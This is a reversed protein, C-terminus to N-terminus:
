YLISLWFVGIMITVITIPIGARLYEGFSLIVKRKKASEAVILNAVSGLLTLNGAFTTAMAMTLWAIQTNSFAAVINRLLLVAPVNSILNSSVTSIVTLDIIENGSNIKLIDILHESVGITEITRTVVFLGSFFVLLSWDIEIFVREPKIRRTILLLSAAGMAALATPVGIFLAALMLISAIISKKLLPRYIRFQPLEITEFTGNSFETKYLLRIFIWIVVLGLSAIPLLYLTFEAFAIGSFTGILINQPNGIITAVSGVNAATALAILYPLPNRKLLTTIEMVIPTFVLVITDNLFLASLSGSFFILYGLLRQPTRAYKLISKSVLYFFGCLRFNVNLVMISFLLVITNLDVAQYAQETSIANIMILLVAGVFAITARNMRLLPYRGLSVGIITVSIIILAPWISSLM